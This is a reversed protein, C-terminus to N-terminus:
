RDLRHSWYRWGVQLGLIVPSALRELIELSFKHLLGLKALSVQRELTALSVQDSRTNGTLWSSRYSWHSGTAGTDGTLRYSWHSRHGTAGTDGTLRTGPSAGTLGISFSVQDRETKGTTPGLSVGTDLKGTNGLSGTAGTAGTLGTARYGWDHRHSWHSRYSRNSWHQWHARNGRHSWHSRYSRNSWHQWHAQQELTALSDQQGQPELSVQQGTDGTM